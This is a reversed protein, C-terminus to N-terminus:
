DLEIVGKNAVLTISSSAELEFALNGAILIIKKVELALEGVQVVALLKVVADKSISLTQEM